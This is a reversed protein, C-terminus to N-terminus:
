LTNCIKKGRKGMAESIKITFPVDLGLEMLKDHQAFVERPTGDMAIKGKEMVLIRSASQAVEDMYHSIMIITMDSDKNLTRLLELVSERGEPDLGATPEDLILVDPEMALVGAFAVRRKQGGSLEFPSKEGVEEIDLGVRILAREVRSQIEDDDLGLNKPGYGIDKIM